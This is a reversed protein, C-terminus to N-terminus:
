ESEKLRWLRAMKGTEECYSNIWKKQSDRLVVKGCHKCKYKIRKAEM